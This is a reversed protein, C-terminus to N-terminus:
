AYRNPDLRIEEWLATRHPVGARKMMGMMIDEPRQSDEIM